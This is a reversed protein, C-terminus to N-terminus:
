RVYSFSLPNPLHRRPTGLLSHCSGRTTTMGACAPMWFSIAPSRSFARSEPRRRFSPTQPLLTPSVDPGVRERYGPPDPNMRLQEGREGSPWRM